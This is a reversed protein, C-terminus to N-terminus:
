KEQITKLKKKTEEMAQEFEDYNKAKPAKEQFLETFTESIANIEDVKEQSAPTINGEKDILYVKTTPSTESANVILLEFHGDDDGDYYGFDIYNSVRASYAGTVYKNNIKYQQIMGIWEDGINLNIKRTEDPSFEM